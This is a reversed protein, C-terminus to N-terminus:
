MFTATAASPSAMWDRANEPSQEFVPSELWVELQTSGPKLRLIQPALSNTLFLSGDAGVVMDNCLTVKGPLAASVKGRRVCSRFRLSPEQVLFVLQLFTM